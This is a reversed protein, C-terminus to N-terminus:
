SNLPGPRNYDSIVVGCSWLRRLPNINTRIQMFYPHHYCQTHKPGRQNTWLMISLRHNTLFSIKDCVFCILGNM